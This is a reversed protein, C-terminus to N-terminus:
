TIGGHRGEEPNALIEIMTTWPHPRQGDDMLGVRSGADEGLLHTLAPHVQVLPPEGLPSSPRPELDGVIVRDEGEAARHVGVLLIAM